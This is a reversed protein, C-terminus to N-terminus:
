WRPTRTALYTAPLALKVADRVTAGPGLSHYVTDLDTSARVKVPIPQSVLLMDQWTGGEDPDRFFQRAFFEVVVGTEVHLVPMASAVEDREWELNITASIHESRLYAVQILLNPIAPVTGCHAAPAHELFLAQRLASSGHITSHFTKSVHQSRLLTQGSIRPARLDCPYEYEYEPDWTPKLNLLIRELLEATNFVREVASTNTTAMLALLTDAGLVIGTEDM